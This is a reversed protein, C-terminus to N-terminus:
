LKGTPSHNQKQTHKHQHASKKVNELFIKIKSLCKRGDTEVGSSIDVAWPHFLDLIDGINDPTLGGALIFPIDRPFHSILHHPFCQGTGGNEQRTKSDLLVCNYKNNLLRIPDINIKEASVDIPFTKIVPKSYVLSDEQGHLQILDLDLNESIKNVVNIPQDQFVGVILPSNTELVTQRVLYSFYEKTNLASKLRSKLYDSKQTQRNRRLITIIEEARSLSVQRKSRTFVLGVLDIELGVLGEATETESIGCIKVLPKKHVLYTLMRTPNPSRMLSTGMLYHNIGVDQYLQFDSPKELGSFIITAINDPIQRILALSETKNVQFTMLNRNNVGIIKAGIELAIKLDNEHNIEVIPEMGFSRALELLNKLQSLYDDTYITQFVMIIFLITDAGALVSQYIQYSTFIFDKQLLFVPTTKEQRNNWLNIIDRAQELDTKDGLFWESETLVSIGIAGGVLYKLVQNKCSVKKNIEGESPSARKYEAIINTPHVAQKLLDYVKVPIHKQSRSKVLNALTESNVETQCQELERKKSTLIKTLFSM